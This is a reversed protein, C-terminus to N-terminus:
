TTCCRPIKGEMNEDCSFLAGFIKGHNSPSPLGDKYPWVSTSPTVKASNPCGHAVPGRALLDSVAIEPNGSSACAASEHPTRVSAFMSITFTAISDLILNNPGSGIHILGASQIPERGTNEAEQTIIDHRPASAKGREQSISISQSPGFTRERSERVWNQM